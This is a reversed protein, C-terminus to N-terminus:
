RITSNDQRFEWGSMVPMMMDTLILDPRLAM